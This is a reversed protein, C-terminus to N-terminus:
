EGMMQVSAEPFIVLTSTGKLFTGSSGISHGALSRNCVLSATLQDNYCQVPMIQKFHAYKQSVIVTKKANFSVRMELLIALVHQQLHM